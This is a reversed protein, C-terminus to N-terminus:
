KESSPKVVEFSRRVRNNQNNFDETSRVEVTASLNNSFEGDSLLVSVSGGVPVNEFLKEESYIKKGTVADRLTCVLVMREMEETGRNQATFVVSEVAGAENKVFAVDAAAADFIGPSDANLAREVNVGGLGYEVDDAPLGMDNSNELLLVAAEEASMGEKIAMVYALSGTVCPVSASTGSFMVYDSGDDAILGVGPAVLALEAGTSSFDPRQSDANVAGIALVGSYAAPYLVSSEGSEATGENGASAVVLVGKSAAYAVAMELLADGQTFGLSMSIIQAGSDVATVIAQAVNHSSGYGEADMVPFSLINASPVCGVVGEKGALVSAVMTGHLSAAEKSQKGLGFLDREQISIGKLSPADVNVATDLLAITIGKGRNEATKDIGLWNLARDEFPRGPYGFLKEEEYEPIIWEIHNIYITAESFTSSSLLQKLRTAAGRLRVVRLPSIASLFLREKRAAEILLRYQEDDQM